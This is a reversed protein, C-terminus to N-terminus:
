QSPRQEAAAKAAAKKSEEERLRIADLVTKKLEEDDTIFGKRVLEKLVEDAGPTGNLSGVTSTTLSIIGMIREIPATKKSILNTRTVLPDEAIFVRDGPLIQYNTATAGRQTIADWDIPLIKGKAPDSALSRVLWINKSSVQSLGNTQGLADLVTEKGTIPLRRVSDGLGAGQTIVYYVKSNYAVVSVSLSHSELFQKLRNQIAIRAEAVTKGEVNVRGYLRLNVTGDPAVLYQGTVPQAGSVRALQVYVDPERLWQRLWKNLAARMEDKTMGAVKVSGYPPGLDITGDAQVMFYNDIPRDPLANARIQLVDFIGARYPQLPVLKLMEIQIVDPPEIRYAPLPRMALEHPPAEGATNARKEAQDPTQKAPTQRGATISKEQGQGAKQEATAKAKKNEEGSRIADLVITKLEEDDTILGKRVLEKVLGAAVPTSKLGSVTSTTLGLVGEIREIPATRKAMLNTRAVLPDEGFVLRDGPMLTYNTTNIGRKSIAEWDIALITSTDRSNPSPRAIWIKTSSVQSLGNVASVASLVTEKGTCPVSRVSDGLGAGETIIYFVPGAPIPTTPTTPTAVSAGGASIGGYPASSITGSFTSSSDTGLMLTGASITTGGTYTNSGTLTLMGSGTKTLSPNDPEDGHLSAIPITVAVLLFAFRVFSRSM